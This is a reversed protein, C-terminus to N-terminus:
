LVLSRSASHTSERKAPTVIYDGEISISCHADGSFALQVQYQSFGLFTLASGHLPSLDTETSLGHM